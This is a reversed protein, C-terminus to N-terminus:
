ERDALTNRVAFLSVYYVNKNYNATLAYFLQGKRFSLFEDSPSHYDALAQIKVIFSDM